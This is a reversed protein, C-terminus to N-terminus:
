WSKHPEIMIQSQNVHRAENRAPEVKGDERLWVKRGLDLM